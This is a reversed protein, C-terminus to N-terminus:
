DSGATLRIVAHFVRAISGRCGIAGQDQDAEHEVAGHSPLYHGHHRVRGAANLRERVIARALSIEALLFRMPQHCFQVGVGVLLSAVDDLKQQEGARALCLDHM